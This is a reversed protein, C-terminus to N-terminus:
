FSGELDQPSPLVLLGSFLYFSPAAVKASAEWPKLTKKTPPIESAQAPLGGAEQKIMLFASSSKRCGEREGM